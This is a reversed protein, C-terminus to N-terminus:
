RLCCTPRVSFCAYQRDAAQVCVQVCVELRQKEAMKRQAWEEATEEKVKEPTPAKAKVGLDVEYSCVFMHPGPCLGGRGVACAMHM